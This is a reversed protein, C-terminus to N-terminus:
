RHRSCCLEEGLQRECWLPFCANFCGTHAGLGLPTECLRYVLVIAEVSDDFRVGLFTLLFATVHSRGRLLGRSGKGFSAMVCLVAAHQVLFFLPAHLVLCSCVPCRM